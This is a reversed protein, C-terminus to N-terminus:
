IPVLSFTPSYFLLSTTLLFLFFFDSASTFLFPFYGLLLLVVVVKIKLIALIVFELQVLSYVKYQTLVLSSLLSSQVPNDVKYVSVGHDM